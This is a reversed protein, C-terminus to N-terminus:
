SPALPAEARLIAPLETVFKSKALVRDAGAARAAKRRDTDLHPGFVIVQRAGAAKLRAIAAAVELGADLDVLVPESGISEPIQGLTTVFRVRRGAARAAASIRAQFFLDTVVAIM